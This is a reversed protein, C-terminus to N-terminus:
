PRRRPTQARLPLVAVNQWGGGPLPGTRLSGGMAAARERMGEIGFGGGKAREPLAAASRGDDVIKLELGSDVTTLTIRVHRADAAHKRVNTLAERVIRHVGATVDPPLRDEIGPEIYLSIDPCGDGTVDAVLKRTDALSAVPATTAPRGPDARRMVAVLRRMAGLAETAEREIRELMAATEQPDQTNPADGGPAQAAFRAAKTQVVIGTVHHAVVDHLERALERREAARLADLDRVRQESQTRLLLSFAAVIVTILTIALTWEHPDSDRAPIAMCAVALPPGLIAAAHDSGRWVTGVLLLLLAVLEGVGWAGAADDSALLFLTTTWSAVVAVSARLTRSVSELPVACLSAVVASGVAFANQLPPLRELLVDDLVTLSLLFAAVACKQATSWPPHDAGWDSLRKM